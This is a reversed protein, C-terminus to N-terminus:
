GTILIQYVIRPQNFSSITKMKIKLGPLVIEPQYNKCNGCILLSDITTLKKCLELFKSYSTTINKGEIAFILNGSKVLM